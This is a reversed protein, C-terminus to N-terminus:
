PHGHITSLTAVWVMVDATPAIHRQLAFAHNLREGRPRWVPLRYDDSGLNFRSENRSWRTGNRQLGTEEHEAGFTATKEVVPRDLACGSGPRRTFSMERVVYGSYGLQHASWGSLHM